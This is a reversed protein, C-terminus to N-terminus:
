RRQYRLGAPDTSQGSPLAQKERYGIHFRLREIHRAPISGVIVQEVSLRRVLNGETVMIIYSVLAARDRAVQGLRMRM